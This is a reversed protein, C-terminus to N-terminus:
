KQQHLILDLIPGLRTHIKEVEVKREKSSTGCDNTAQLIFTTTNEVNVETHGSVPDIKGPFPKITASDAGEIQWALPLSQAGRLESSGVSFQKIVPAATCFPVMGSEWKFMVVNSREKVNRSSTRALGSVMFGYVEGARPSFNSLPPLKIHDGNVAYKNKTVQGFKMWEFTAAYWKDDRQVFIWPNANVSITGGASATVTRGPWSRYKDYNLTITSATTSVSKLVSTQKWSSVDTHLWVVDSFDQPFGAQAQSSFLLTFQLLLLVLSNKPTIRRRIRTM